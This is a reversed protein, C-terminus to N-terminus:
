GVSSRAADNDKFLNMLGTRNNNNPFPNSQWHVHEDLLMRLYAEPEQWQPLDDSYRPIPMADFKEKLDILDKTTIRPLSINPVWGWKTLEDMVLYHKGTLRYLSRKKKKGHIRFSLPKNMTM